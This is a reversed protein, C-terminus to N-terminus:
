RRGCPRRRRGLITRKALAFLLVGSALMLVLWGLADGYSLRRLWVLLMSGGSLAGALLLSGSLELDLLLDTPPSGRLSYRLRKALSLVTALLLVWTLILSATGTLLLDLLMKPLSAPRGLVHALLSWLGFGTIGWTLLLVSLLFLRREMDCGLVVQPSLTGDPRRPPSGLLSSGM